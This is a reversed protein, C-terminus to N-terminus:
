YSRSAQCEHMLIQSFILSMSVNYTYHLKKLQSKEQQSAREALLDLLTDKEEDSFDCRVKIRFCLDSMEVKVGSRGM